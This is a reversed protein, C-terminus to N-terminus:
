GSGRSREDRERRVSRLLEFPEAAKVGSKAGWVQCRRRVAGTSRPHPFEQTETEYAELAEIKRDLADTVEVFTTPRFANRSSSASWESASPTEGAYVQDVGSDPLPRTATVVARCTLEHDVNLDGYHHTYVADPDVKDVVAEVAKVLELLPVSDFQNDPFSEVRLDDVGLRDCAVHARNLRRDIEEQAAADEPDDYRSTVGDSLVLVTVEDGDAAHRALTGGAVLTEDDPHAVVCLVQM